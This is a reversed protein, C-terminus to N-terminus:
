HGDNLITRDPGDDTVVPCNRVRFQGDELVEIIETGEHTCGVEPPDTFFPCQQCYSRKDVTATETSDGDVSGLSAAEDPPSPSDFPEDTDTPEATETPEESDFASAEAETDALEDWLAEGDIEDVGIEDFVEDADPAAEAASLQSDFGDLEADTSAPDGSEEPTSVTPTVDIVEDPEADTPTADIVETDDRDTEAFQDIEDWLDEASEEDGEDTNESM